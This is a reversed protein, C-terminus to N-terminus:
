TLLPSLTLPFSAFGEGLTHLAKEEPTNIYLPNVVRAKNTTADRCVM